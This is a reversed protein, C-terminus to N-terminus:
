KLRDRQRWKSVKESIFYRTPKGILSRGILAAVLIFVSFNCYRLNEPSFSGYSYRLLVNGVVYGVGACFINYLTGNLFRGLLHSGLRRRADLYQRETINLYTIHGGKTYEQKLTEPIKTIHQWSAWKAAVKFTLWGAAIVYADLWAAAFFLVRELIGLEKGGGGKESEEFDEFEAPFNVTVSTALFSGCLSGLAATVLIGVGVALSLPSTLLVGFMELFARRIQLLYSGVFVTIWWGKTYVDQLCNRHFISGILEVHAIQVIQSLALFAFL